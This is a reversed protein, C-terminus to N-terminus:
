LLQELQLMIIVQISADQLTKAAQELEIQLDVDVGRQVGLSALDDCCLIDLHTGGQCLIFAFGIRAAHLIRARQGSFAAPQTPMATLLWLVHSHQSAADEINDIKAAWSLQSMPAGLQRDPHEMIAGTHLSLTHRNERALHLRLHLFQIIVNILPAGDNGNLVIRCLQQRHAIHGLADCLGDATASVLPLGQDACREGERTRHHKKLSENRAITAPFPEWLSCLQRQATADQQKGSM